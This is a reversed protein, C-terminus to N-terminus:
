KNLNWLHFPNPINNFKPLNPNMAKYHQPYHELWQILESTTRFFQNCVPVTVFDHNKEIWASVYAQEVTDLERIDMDQKDQIAKIVEDVRNKTNIWPLRDLFADHVSTDLLDLKLNLFESAQSLTKFFKDKDWFSSVPFSFTNHPRHKRLERDVTIFGNKKPDLFSLKYSDRVIFKPITNNNKLDINYHQKFKEEWPFNDLFKSNVTILEQSTDVGFDGARITVWRELFLLDEDNVTILIHPENIDKFYPSDHTPHYRDVSGSYDLKIHSTNNETFPTGELSKTLTSFKDICFRLYNGHTGGQFAINVINGM